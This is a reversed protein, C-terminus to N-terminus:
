WNISHVVTFGNYNMSLTDIFDYPSIISPIAYVLQGDKNAVNYALNAGYYYSQWVIESCYTNTLDKPNPTIVYSTNKGAGDVYYSKAWAAAKSSNSNNIARVVKTKPYSSIWSSITIVTPKYGPGQIHLFMYEDPLVIGSHGTLGQLSTSATILIDGPSYYFGNVIARTATANATASSFTTSVFILLLLTVMIKSLYLKSKLM